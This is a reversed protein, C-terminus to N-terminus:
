VRPEGRTAKDIRTSKPGSHADTRGMGFFMGGCCLLLVAAILVASVSAGFYVAIAGALLALGICTWMTKM